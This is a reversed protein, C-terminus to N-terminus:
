TKGSWEHSYLLNILNVVAMTSEPKQMYLIAFM